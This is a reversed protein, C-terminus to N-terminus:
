CRGWLLKTLRVLAWDSHEYAATRELYLKDKIVGTWDGYNQRKRIYRETLLLREEDTLRGWAPLFTDTYYNIDKVGKELLMKKDIAKVLVEESQSSGGSVRVSSLVKNKASTM